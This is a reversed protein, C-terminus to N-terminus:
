RELLGGPISPGAAGRPSNLRSGSRDCRASGGRATGRPTSAWHSSQPVWASPPSGARCTIPWPPHHYPAGGTGGGSAAAAAAALALDTDSYEATTTSLDGAVPLPQQYQHNQLQMARAEEAFALLTHLSSAHKEVPRDNSGSPRPEPSPKPKTVRLRPQSKQQVNRPSSATEQSRRLVKSSASKSCHRKNDQEQQLAKSTKVADVRNSAVHARPTTAHGKDGAALKVSGRASLSRAVVPMVEAPSASSAAMAQGRPSTPPRRPSVAAARPSAGRPSTGRPSTPRSGLRPTVAAGVEVGGRLMAAFASHLEKEMRIGSSPEPLPVDETGDRSRRTSFDSQKRGLALRPVRGQATSASSAGHSRLSAPVSPQTLVSHCSIDNLEEQLSTRHELFQHQLAQEQHLQQQMHQELMQQQLMNQQRQKQLAHQQQQQQLKHDHDGHLAFSQQHSSASYPMTASPLRSHYVNAHTDRSPTTTAAHEGAEALESDEVSRRTLPVDEDYLTALQPLDALQALSEDDDVALATHLRVVDEPSITAGDDALLNPVIAEFHERSLRVQPLARRLSKLPSAKVYTSVDVAGGHAGLDNEFFRAIHVDVEAESCLGLRLAAEVGAVELSGHRAVLADKVLEALQQLSRSGQRADADAYRRNARPLRQVFVLYRQAILQWCMAGLHTPAEAAPASGSAGGGGGCTLTNGGANGGDPGSLAAAAAHATAAAALKAAKDRPTMAAEKADEPECRQQPPLSSLPSFCSRQEDEATGAGIGAGNSASPAAARGGCAGCAGSSGCLEPELWSVYGSTAVATDEDTGFAALSRESNVRRRPSSRREAAAAAAAAAANNAAVLGKLGTAGRADSSPAAPARSSSSAARTAASSSSAVATGCADLGGHRTPWGTTGPVSAVKASVPQTVRAQQHPLHHSGPRQRLPTRVHSTDSPPSPGAGACAVGSPLSPGTHYRERGPSALGTRPTAGPANQASALRLGPVTVAQLQAPAYQPLPPTLGGPVSRGGSPYALPTATAFPTSLGAPGAVVATPRPAWPLVTALRGDSAM